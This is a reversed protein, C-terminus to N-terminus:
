WNRSSKTDQCPASVLPVHQCEESDLLAENERERCIQEPKNKVESTKKTSQVHTKMCSKSEPEKNSEPKNKGSSTKKTSQVQTQM